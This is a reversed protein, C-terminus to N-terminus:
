LLLGGAGKGWWAEHGLQGQLRLWRVSGGCLAVAMVTGEGKGLLWGVRVGSALPPLVYQAVSTPPTTSVPPGKTLAMATQPLSDTRRLMEPAAM